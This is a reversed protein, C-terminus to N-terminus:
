WLGPNIFELLWRNPLDLGWCRGACCCRRGVCAHIDILSVGAKALTYCDPRRRHVSLNIRHAFAPPVADRHTAVHRLRACFLWVRLLWQLGRGDCVVRRFHWHSIQDVSGHIPLTPSLKRWTQLAEQVFETLAARRGSGWRNQGLGIEIHHPQVKRFSTSGRVAVADDSIATTTLLEPDASERRLGPIRWEDTRRAAPRRSAQFLARM